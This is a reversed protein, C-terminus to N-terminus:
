KAGEVAKELVTIWGPLKNDVAFKLAFPPTEDSTQLGKLVRLLQEESLPAMPPYENSAVRAELDAKPCLKAFSYDVCTPKMCFEHEDKGFTCTPDSYSHLSVMNVVLMESDDCLLCIMLHSGAPNSFGGTGKM